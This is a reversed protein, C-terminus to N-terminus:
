HHVFNGTLHATDHLLKLVGLHSSQTGLFYVSGFAWSRVSPM